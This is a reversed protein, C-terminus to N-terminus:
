ETAHLFHVVEGQFEWGLHVILLLSIDRKGHLDKGTFEKHFVRGETVRVEHLLQKFKYHKSMSLFFLSSVQRVFARSAAHVKCLTGKQKHQQQMEIGLSKQFLSHGQSEASHSQIQRKIEVM